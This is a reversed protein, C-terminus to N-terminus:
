DKQEPAIEPTAEVYGIARLHELDAETVGRVAEAPRGLRRLRDTGELAADLQGLLESVLESRDASLDQLELPDAELDYLFVAEAPLGENILDSLEEITGYRAAVRAGDVLTTGDVTEPFYLERWEADMFPYTLRAGLPDKHPRIRVLRWRGREFAQHDYTGHETVLDRETAAGSASGRVAGRLESAASGGPLGRESLDFGCLELLTPMLDVTQHRGRVRTGGREGNPLRVMLPVRTVASGISAHGFLRHQETMSEGHDSTLLVISRDLRGEKRWRDFLAGLKADVEAIGADYANIFPRPDMRPPLPGEPQEGRAIYTAVVDWGPLPGDVPVSEPWDGPPDDAFRARWAPPALYPGHLDYAHLFLFSPDGEAHTDLWDEALSVVRTLGGERNALPEFVSSSDLVEFGQEFGFDPSIWNTDVFAGTRWGAGRFAEALTWRNPALQLTEWGQVREVRDDPRDLRHAGPPLGSLMSLFSPLTWTANTIMPDFLISESAFEVLRPTTPRSYGYLQTHTASFTDIGILIVDPRKPARAKVVASSVTLEGESESRWRLEFRLPNSGAGFPVELQIAEEADLAQEGAAVPESAEFSIPDFRVLKWNLVGETASRVSFELRGAGRPEIGYGATTFPALRLRQSDIDARVRASRGWRIPGLRFACSAHGPREFTTPGTFELRNDGINWLRGPVEFRFEQPKEPLEVRGIEVDNLEVLLEVAEGGLGMRPAGLWLSVSADERRTKGLLVGGSPHVCEAMPPEALPPEPFGVTGDPPAASPTGVYRWTGVGRNGFPKGQEPELYGLEEVVLDPPRRLLELEVNVLEGASETRGSCSSMGSGALGALVLATTSGLAKTRTTKAM